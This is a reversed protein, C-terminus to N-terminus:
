LSLFQKSFDYSLQDSAGAIRKEIESKRMPMGLQEALLMAPNDLKKVIEESKLKNLKLVINDYYYDNDSDHRFVYVKGKGVLSDLMPFVSWNISRLDEDEKKVLHCGRDTGYLDKDHLLLYFDDGDKKLASILFEVFRVNCSEFSDNMVPVVYVESDIHKRILYRDNTELISNIFEKKNEATNVWNEFNDNGFVVDYSFGINDSFISDSENTEPEIFTLNKLYQQFKDNRFIDSHKSIISKYLEFCCEDGYNQYNGFDRPDIVDKVSIVIKRNNAAM